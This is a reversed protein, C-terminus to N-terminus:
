SGSVRHERFHLVLDGATKLIVLCAVLLASNGLFAVTMGGFIITLHLVVIRRYPLFMVEGPSMKEAERKGLYNFYYSVLHSSLFGAVVFWHEQLYSLPKGSQNLSAGGSVVRDSFVFTGHGYCFIGYHVTFFVSLVLLKPFRARPHRNTLIRLVTILGFAINEAWYLHLIQAV